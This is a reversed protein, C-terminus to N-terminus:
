QCKKMDCIPALPKPLTRLRMYPHAQMQAKENVVEEHQILWDVAKNSALSRTNVKKVLHTDISAAQVQSVISMHKCQGSVVPLPLKLEDQTSLFTRSM